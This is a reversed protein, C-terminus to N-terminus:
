PQTTPEDAPLAFNFMELQQYYYQMPTLNKIAEWKIIDNIYFILNFSMEADRSILDKFLDERVHEPIYFRRFKVERNIRLNDVTEGVGHEQM